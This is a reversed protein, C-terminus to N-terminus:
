FHITYCLRSSFLADSNKISMFHHQMKFEFLPIINLNLLSNINLNQELVGQIFLQRTVGCTTMQM